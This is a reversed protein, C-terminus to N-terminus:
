NRCTKLIPCQWICILARPTLVPWYGRGLRNAAPIARYTLLASPNGGCFKQPRYDRIFPGRRSRKRSPATHAATMTAGESSDPGLEPAVPAGLRFRHQTRMEDIPEQRRRRIGNDFRDMRLRHRHDQRGIFLAVHPHARRPILGLRQLPRQRIIRQLDDRAADVLFILRRRSIICNCSEFQSGQAGFAGGCRGGGAQFM